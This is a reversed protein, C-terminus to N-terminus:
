WSGESSVEGDTYKLYNGGGNADWEAEFDLEGNIYYFFLGSSDDRSIIGIRLSDKRLDSRFLEDSYKWDLSLKEFSDEFWTIKGESSAVDEQGQTLLESSGSLIKTMNIRYFSNTLSDSYSIINGLNDTWQWISGGLGVYETPINLKLLYPSALENVGSLYDSTIRASVDSSNRLLEPVLILSSRKALYSEFPVREVGSDQECGMFLALATFLFPFVFHGQTKM